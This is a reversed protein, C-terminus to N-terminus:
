QKSPWHLLADASHKIVELKDERFASDGGAIESASDAMDRAQDIITEHTDQRSQLFTDERREAVVLMWDNIPEDGVSFNGAFRPDDMLREDIFIWCLGSAEHKKM